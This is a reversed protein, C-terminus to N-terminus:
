AKKRPKAFETAIIRRITEELETLPISAPATSKSVTHAINKAVPLQSRLRAITPMEAGSTIADLAESLLADALNSAGPRKSTPNLDRLLDNLKESTTKLVRLQTFESM